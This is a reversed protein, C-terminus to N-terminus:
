CTSILRDRGISARNRIARISFTIQHGRSRRASPFSTGALFRCSRPVSASRFVRCGVFRIIRGGSLVRAVSSSVHEFPIEGYLHVADPAEHIEKRIVKRVLSEYKALLAVLADEDGEHSRTILEADTLHEEGESPSPLTRYTYCM